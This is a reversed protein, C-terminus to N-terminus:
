ISWKKDIFNSIATLTPFVGYLRKCPGRGGLLLLGAGANNNSISLQFADLRNLLGRQGYALNTPM